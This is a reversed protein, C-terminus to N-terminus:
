KAEKLNEIKEYLLIRGCNDCLVIEKGKFINDLTMSSVKMKCGGCVTGQLKAVPRKKHKKMDNYVALLKKPIEGELNRVENELLKIENNAEEIKKSTKEKYSYFNNKVTLLETKSTEIELKLKEETELLIIAKDELVKLSAKSNKINTELAKIAKLDSGAENYLTKEFDSIKSNLDKLNRSISAYEKKINEIAKVKLNYKDRNEEFEKKMKRLLYLYSGDLTVKKNEEIKDYSEQLEFLKGVINM